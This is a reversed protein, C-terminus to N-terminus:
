FDNQWYVSIAYTFCKAIETFYEVIGVTFAITCFSCVGFLIIPVFSLGKKLKRFYRIIVRFSITFIVLGLVLIVVGACFYLNGESGLSVGIGKSTGTVLAVGISFWAPSIVGLIAIWILAILTLFGRKSFTWMSFGEKKM